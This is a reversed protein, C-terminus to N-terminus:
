ATRRNARRIQAVARAPDIRRKRDAARSAESGPRDAVLEEDVIVEPDVMPPDLSAGVPEIPNTKAPLPEPDAPATPNTKAPSEAAPPTAFPELLPAAYSPCFYPNLARAPTELRTQAVYWQLRTQLSREYRRVRALSPSVDDSLDAEVLSRALEDAEAARVRQLELDAIRFGVWNPDLWEGERGGLLDRALVKQTETWRAPDTAALDRWRTLLWDCGAVSQRLEAVVRAPTQGLKLGLTEAALAQDEDWFDIARYSAWDRLRREIRQLRNIRVMLGGVQHVLWSQWANRPKFEEYAGEAWVQMTEADEVVVVPERLAAQLTTRRASRRPSEPSGRQSTTPRNPETEPSNTPSPIM